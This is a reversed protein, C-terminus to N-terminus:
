AMTTAERAKKQFKIAAQHGKENRALAEFFVATLKDGERSARESARGYIETAEEELALARDFDAAAERSMSGTPREYEAESVIYYADVGCLPCAAPRATGSFKKGCVVCRWNM